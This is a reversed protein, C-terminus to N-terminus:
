NVLFTVERFYQVKKIQQKFFYDYQTSRELRELLQQLEEIADMKM